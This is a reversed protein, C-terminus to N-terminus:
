AKEKISDFQASEFINVEDWADNPNEEVKWM